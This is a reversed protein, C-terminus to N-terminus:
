DNMFLVFEGEAARAAQNRKVAPLRENSRLLRVPTRASSAVREVMEPTADSSNDAVLIEYAGAPYDVALLRRLTEEVIGCRNYTPVICSFVVTMARNIDS